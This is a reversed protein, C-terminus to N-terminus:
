QRLSKELPEWFELNNVYGPRLHYKTKGCYTTNCGSCLFKYVTSSRLFWPIRDKFTFYNSIKCKTQFVFWLNKLLRTQKKMTCYIIKGIQLPLKGLYVLAIVLDKKPM